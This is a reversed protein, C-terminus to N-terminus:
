SRRFGLIAFFLAFGLCMGISLSASVFAAGFAAVYMLPGFRYRATLHAM